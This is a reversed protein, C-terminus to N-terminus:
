PKWLSIDEIGEFDSDDSALHTLGRRKMVALHLADATVLGWKESLRLATDLDSTRVESIRLGSDRLVNLFNQYEFLPRFIESRKSEDKLLSKVRKITVRELFNSSVQLMLKFFVEELVLVSTYAKVSINEVRKLFEVSVENIGFAHHLFINADVFISAREPFNKLERIVQM